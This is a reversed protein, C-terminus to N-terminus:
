ASNILSNSYISTFLIQLICFFQCRDTLFHFWSAYSLTSSHWPRSWFDIILNGILKSLLLQKVYHYIESTIACVLIAIFTNKLFAVQMESRANSFFFLFALSLIVQLRALQVPILKSTLINPLDLRSLHSSSSYSDVILATLNSCAM